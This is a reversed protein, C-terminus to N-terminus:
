TLSTRREQATASSDIRTHAHPPPPPPKGSSSSRQSKVASRARAMRENYAAAKFGPGSEGSGARVGPGGGRGGSLVQPTPEMAMPVVLDDGLDDLDDGSLDNTDMFM